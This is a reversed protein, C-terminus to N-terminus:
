LCHEELREIAERQNAPEAYLWRAGMWAIAERRREERRVRVSPDPQLSVPAYVEEGCRLCEARLRTRPCSECPCPAERYPGPRHRLLCRM